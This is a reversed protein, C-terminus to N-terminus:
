ADQGDTGLTTSSVQHGNDNGGSGIPPRVGPGGGDQGGENKKNGPNNVDDKRANETGHARHNGHHSQSRDDRCHHQQCPGSSQPGGRQGDALRRGAGVGSTEDSGSGLRAPDATPITNTVPKVPM